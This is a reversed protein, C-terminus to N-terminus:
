DIKFLISYSNEFVLLLNYFFDDFTLLGPLLSSLFAALRFNQGAQLSSAPSPSYLIGFGAAFTSSIFFFAPAINRFIKIRQSASHQISFAAQHPTASASPPQQRHHFRSLTPRGGHHTQHATTKNQKAFVRNKRQTSHNKRGTARM